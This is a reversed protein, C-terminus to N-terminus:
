HGNFNIDPLVHYDVFTQVFNSDSKTINEISEGSMGTSKRSYIQTTGHFCKIYKNAQIFVLYNQFMGVPFYKEENLISFKDVLYKTLRKTSVAKIQKSLEGLWNKNTKFGKLKNDFDTKKVFNTIDSKSASNAGQFRM